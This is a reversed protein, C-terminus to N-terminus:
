PMLFKGTLVLSIVAFIGAIIIQHFIYVWIAIRGWFNVPAYWDYKGLSPILSKKNKYIFTNINNLSICYKLKEIFVQNMYRNIDKSSKEIWTINNVKNVDYREKLVSYLSHLLVISKGDSNLFTNTNDLYLNVSNKNASIIEYFSYM